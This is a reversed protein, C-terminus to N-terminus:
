RLSHFAPHVLPPGATKTINLFGHSNRHSSHNNQHGNGQESVQAPSADTTNNICNGPLNSTLNSAADNANANAAATAAMLHAAASYREKDEKLMSIRPVLAPVPLSRSCFLCSLQQEQLSLGAAFGGMWPLLVQEETRSTLTLRAPAPAQRPQIPHNVTQRRPGAVDDEVEGEADSGSDVTAGTADEEATISLCVM